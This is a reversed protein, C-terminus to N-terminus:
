EVIEELRTLANMRGSIEVDILVARVVVKGTEPVVMKFKVNPDLYSELAISKDAGIVSDLPGTMGIDTVFGTGNPLVRLDATPVHSHTGYVFHAVGDLHYGLAIKESTAEAHFDVIIIDDKKMVGRLIENTTWFPNQIGGFKAEDFFVKGNLNLILYSQGNKEVRMWGRGPLDGQYNAPRIINPRTELVQRSLERQDFVHNGSTFCDIGLAELEAMTQPTVGKGHALNEVNAMVFDPAYAERWKPLVYAVGRRGPRGVIDGFILIKKMGKSASKEGELM